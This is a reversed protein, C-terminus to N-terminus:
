YTFACSRKHPAKVGLEVLYKWSSWSSDGASRDATDSYGLIDFILNQDMVTRTNKTENIIIKNRNHLRNLNRCPEKDMAIAPKCSELIKGWPLGHLEIMLEEDARHGDRYLQADTVCDGKHARANDASIIRQSDRSRRNLIDRRFTKLFRQTIDIYRQSKATLQGIMYTHHQLRIEHRHMTETLQTERRNKM